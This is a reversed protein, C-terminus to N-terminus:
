IHIGQAFDDPAEAYQTREHYLAPLYNSEGWEGINSACRLVPGNDKFDNRYKIMWIAKFILVKLM